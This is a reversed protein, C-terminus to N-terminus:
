PAAMSHPGGRHSGLQRHVPTAGASPLDLPDCQASRSRRAGRPGPVPGPAADVGDNSMLVNWRGDVVLAPYPEQQRLIFALAQRVQAMEPSELGTERYMAAYGAATLLENKARPPVELVRALLLVM